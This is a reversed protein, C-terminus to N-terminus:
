QWNGVLVFPAWYYPARYQPNHLLMQQALQLSASKSLNKTVLNQYFSIMLDQTAEDSVSWLSAITSKARARIAMGALGLAARNDGIATDCASLVLLDIAENEREGRNQLLTSLRDLSLRNDWTLIFTDEARSSFQGHTAFHVIPANSGVLSDAVLRDNFRENLLTQNPLARGIKELESKVGVLPTLGQRSESVGGLLARGRSRISRVQPPVLQLGPAIALQYNEVLYKKGDYLVSM